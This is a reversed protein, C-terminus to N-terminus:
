RGGRCFWAGARGRPGSGGANLALLNTQFAISEIVGIIESMRTSSGRIHEMAVGVESIATGSRSAVGRSEDSAGAMFQATDATQSVTGSIEEM